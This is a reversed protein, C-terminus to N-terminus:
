NDIVNKLDDWISGKDDSKPLEKIGNKKLYQLVSTDCPSNEMTECKEIRQRIPVSILIFDYLHKGLDLKQIDHNIFLVEDTSEEPDGFNVLMEYEASIPMAIPALCRDCITDAKGSVIFTLSTVGADRVLEMKVLFQGNIGEHNEDFIALFHDDLAWEYTASDSKLIAAPIRYPALLDM